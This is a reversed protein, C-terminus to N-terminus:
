RRGARVGCAGGNKHSNLKSTEGLNLPPGACGRFVRVSGDTPLRLRLGVAGAALPEKM